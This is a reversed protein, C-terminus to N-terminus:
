HRWSASRLVPVSEFDIITRDTTIDDSLFGSPRRLVWGRFPEVLKRKLQRPPSDTSADVVFLDAEGIFADPSELTTDAVWHGIKDRVFESWPPNRVLRGAISLLLLRKYAREPDFGKRGGQRGIEGPFIIDRSVSYIYLEHLEQWTHCPLSVDGFLSLEIQRGLFRFLQRVTWRRREDTVASYVDMSADLDRLVQKLNKVMLCYIRQELLLIDVGGHDRSVGNGAIKPLAAVATLLLRSLERLIERRLAAPMAVRSMRDLKVILQPIAEKLKSQRLGGSWARMWRPTFEVPTPGSSLIIELAYCNRPDTM